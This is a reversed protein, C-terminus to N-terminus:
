GKLGFRPPGALHGKCRSVERGGGLTAGPLGMMQARSLFPPPGGEGAARSTLANTSLGTSFLERRRQSTRDWRWETRKLCNQFLLFFFFDPFRLCEGVGPGWRLPPLAAAQTLPPHPPQRAEEGPGM